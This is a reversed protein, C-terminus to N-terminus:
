QQSTVELDITQQSQCNGHLFYSLELVEGVSKVDKFLFLIVFWPLFWGSEAPSNCPDCMSLRLILSLLMSLTSDRWISIPLVQSFSVWSSAVRWPDLVATISARDQHSWKKSSLPHILNAVSGASSVLKIAEYQPAQSHSLCSSHVADHLHMPSPVWLSSNRSSVFLRRHHFFLMSHLSISSVLHM